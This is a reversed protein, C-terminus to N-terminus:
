RNTAVRRVPPRADRDQDQNGDRRRKPPKPSPPALPRPVFTIRLIGKHRFFQLLSFFSMLQSVKSVNGRTPVRLMRDVEQTYVSTWAIMQEIVDRGVPSWSWRWRQPAGGSPPRDDAIMHYLLAAPSLHKGTLPLAFKTWRRMVQMINEELLVLSPHRSQFGTGRTRRSAKRRGYFMTKMFGKVQDSDVFDNAFRGLVFAMQYVLVVFQVCHVGKQMLQALPFRHSKAGDKRWKQARGPLKDLVERNGKLITMGKALPTYCGAQHHHANDQGLITRVSATDHRMIAPYLRADAQGLIFDACSASLSAQMTREYRKQASGIVSSYIRREQNQMDIRRNNSYHVIPAQRPDWTALSLAIISILEPQLTTSRIVLYYIPQGNVSKRLRSAIVHHANGEDAAHVISIYHLAHRGPSAVPQYAAIIGVHLIGEHNHLYNDAQYEFLLAGIPYQEEAEALSVKEYEVNAM